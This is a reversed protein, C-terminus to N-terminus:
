MPASAKPAAKKAKKAKKTKKAKKAPAAKDAAPAATASTAAPAAPAATAAPASAAAFAGAAFLGAILATLLKNMWFIRSIFNTAFGELQFFTCRCRTGFSSPQCYRLFQECNNKKSTLPLTLSIV